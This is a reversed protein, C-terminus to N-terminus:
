VVQKSQGFSLRSQPLRIRAGQIPLQGIELKEAETLPRHSQKLSVRQPEAKKLHPLAKRSTRNVPRKHSVPKDTM